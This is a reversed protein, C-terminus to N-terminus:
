INRSSSLSIFALGASTVANVAVEEADFHTLLNRSWSLVKKQCAAKLRNRYSFTNKSNEWFEWSFM